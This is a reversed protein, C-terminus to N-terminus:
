SLGDWTFVVDGSKMSFEPADENDIIYTLRDIADQIDNGWYSGFLFNWIDNNNNAVDQSLGLFNYTDDKSLFKSALEPDIIPILGALCCSTDCIHKPAMNRNYDVPNVCQKIQDVSHWTRMDFHGQFKPLFERLNKLIDVRLM